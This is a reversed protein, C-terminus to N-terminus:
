CDPSNILRDLEAESHQSSLEKALAEWDRATAKSLATSRARVPRQGNRDVWAAREFIGLQIAALVIARTFDKM